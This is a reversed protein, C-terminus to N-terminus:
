DRVVVLEHKVFLQSIRVMMQQRVFIDRDAHATLHQAIKLRIEDFLLQLHHFGVCFTRM